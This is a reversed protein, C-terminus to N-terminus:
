AELPDEGESPFEGEGFGLYYQSLVLSGQDSVEVRELSPRGWLEWTITVAYEDIPRDFTVWCGSSEPMAKVIQYCEMLFELTGLVVPPPVKTEPAGKLTDMVVRAWEEPDEDMSHIQILLNKCQGM